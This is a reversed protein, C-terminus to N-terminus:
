DRTTDVNKPSTEFHNTDPALPTLPVRLPVRLPGRLPVRLPREWISVLIRVVRAAGKTNVERCCWKHHSTSGSTSGSTSSTSSSSIPTAAQTPTM